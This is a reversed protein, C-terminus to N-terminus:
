HHCSDRDIREVGIDPYRHKFFESVQETGFGQEVSNM